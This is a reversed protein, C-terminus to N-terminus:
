EQEAYRLIPDDGRNEIDIPWHGNLRHQDIDKRALADVIEEVVLAKALVDKRGTKAFNESLDNTTQTEGIIGESELSCHPWHIIVTVEDDIPKLASDPSPADTGIGLEIPAKIPAPSEIAFGIEAKRWM